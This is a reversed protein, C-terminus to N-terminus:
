YRLPPRLCVSFSSSFFSLTILTRKPSSFAYSHTSVVSFLTWLKFNHCTLARTLLRLVRYRGSLQNPDYHQDHCHSSDLGFSRGCTRPLLDVSHLFSSLRLAHYFLFTFCPNNSVWITWRYPLRGRIVGWEYDLTTFFEWSSLSLQTACCALFRHLSM